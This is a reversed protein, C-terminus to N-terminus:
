SDAYEACVHTTLTQTIARFGAAIQLSIALWPKSGWLAVILDTIKYVKEELM